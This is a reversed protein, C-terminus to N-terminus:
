SGSVCPGLDTHINQVSTRDFTHPSRPGPPVRLSPAVGFPSILSRGLFERKSLVWSRIM